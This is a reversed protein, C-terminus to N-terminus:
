DSHLFLDPSAPETTKAPKQESYKLHLHLLDRFGEGASPYWAILPEGKFASLWTHFKGKNKENLSLLLQKSM